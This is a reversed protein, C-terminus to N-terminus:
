DERRYFAAHHRLHSLYKKNCCLTAIVNIPGRAAVFGGREPV